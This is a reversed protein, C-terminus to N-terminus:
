VLRTYTSGQPRSEINPHTLHMLTEVERLFTKFSETDSKHLIKVAVPTGIYRGIRVEGFSGRGLIKGEILNNPSITIGM